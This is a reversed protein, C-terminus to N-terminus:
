RNRGKIIEKVRQRSVGVVEAIVTFPIGWERAERVGANRDGTAIIFQRVMDVHRQRQRLRRKRKITKEEAARMDSPFQVGAMRNRKAVVANKSHNGLAAAVAAASLDSGAILVDLDADSWKM